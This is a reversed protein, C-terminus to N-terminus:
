PGLSRGLLLGSPGSRVQGSRVQGTYVGAEQCAPNGGPGLKPELTGLTRWLPLTADAVRRAWTVLSIGSEGPPCLQWHCSQGSLSHVGCWGPPWRSEAGIMTSVGSEVQLQWPDCRCDGPGIQFRRHWVRTPDSYEAFRLNPIPSKGPEETSPIRNLTLLAWGRHVCLTCFRM